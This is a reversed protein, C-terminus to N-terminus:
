KDRSHTHTHTYSVSFTSISQAPAPSSGGEERQGALSSCLSLLSLFDMWWLTENGRVSQKQMCTCLCVSVCVCETLGSQLGCSSWGFLCFYFVCELLLKTTQLASPKITACIHLQQSTSWFGWDLLAAKENTEENVGGEVQVVVEFLRAVAGAGAAQFGM